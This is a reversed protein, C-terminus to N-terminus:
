VSYEGNDQEDLFNAMANYRLYVTCHVIYM